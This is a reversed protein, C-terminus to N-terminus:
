KVETLEVIFTLPGAPYGAPATEGYAKAAPIVLKRVSGLKAGTLGETWGQIVGSLAFEIPTAVGGSQSSDFIAGDATWGFYNAKVTSAPSAEAGNGAKLGEVQLQSVSAADFPASSYGTLPEKMVQEQQNQQNQQEQLQKQTDETNSAQDKNQLVYLITVAGSSFVFALAAILIAARRAGEKIKAM